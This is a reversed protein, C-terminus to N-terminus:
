TRRKESRRDDTGFEHSKGCAYLPCGRRICTRGNCELDRKMHYLEEFHRTYSPCFAFFTKEGIPYWEQAHGSCAQPKGAFKRNRLMQASLGMFVNSRTHELNEGFIYPSVVTGDGQGPRVSLPAFQKEGNQKTEEANAESYCQSGNVDNVEGSLLEVVSIRLEEALQGILSIDPCSLGREWKSVAKATVGLFVGLEEQTLNLAKRRDAILRGTKLVDM